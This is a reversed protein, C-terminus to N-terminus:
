IIEFVILFMVTLPPVKNKDRTLTQCSQSSFSDEPNLSIKHCTQTSYSVLVLRSLLGGSGGFCILGVQCQFMPLELGGMGGRSGGM